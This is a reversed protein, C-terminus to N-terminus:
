VIQAGASATVRWAAAFNRPDLTGPATLAVVCGGFGGGTMRAGFVGPRDVLERVLADLRPTSVEFCESLSRHSELMLRGAEAPDSDLVEACQVVRTCETHVHRARRRLVPDALAAIAAPEASPLPGLLAEAAAVEARRRRYAGPALSRDEGSHVIVIEVDDPVPVLTTSVTTFDILVARGPQGKIIALQDLLGVDQGAVREAEQCLLALAIDRETAGLALASAILLSASSSLGAGIPLSSSVELVGTRHGLVKLLGAGMAALSGPAHDGGPSVLLDESTTTSRMRLPSAGPTFSATTALDIAMPLAVGGAYDTHDGILNVRGPARAVVLSDM